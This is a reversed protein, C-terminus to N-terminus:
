HGRSALSRRSLRRYLELTEPHVADFPEVEDAVLHFLESMISEVGAPHGAAEATRLLIRYLREDYPSVRLGQRAGWEAGAADYVTLCHESYQCALDVVVAEVTAQIGELLVWDSSRLGDFPRGRILRLALKWDEPIKSNSLDVFRDWDTHVGPGLALRGRARPLYDDGSSESGLSRRAASATSHLSAPAMVKDPWLATAWRDNSVGGPHMALYVILEVAWARTFPRAAGVIEVPGLIRVEVGGDAGDGAPLECDQVAIDPGHRALSAPDEPIPISLAGYPMCGPDVGEAITAVSVLSNVGDILNSPVPQASASDWEWDNEQVLVRGHEARVHWRASPVDRGIIAIVGLSGDGVLETIRQLTGYEDVSRTSSCVVICLDWAEDGELWRPGANNSHGGLALLARREKIRRDLKQVVAGISECHSVRELGDVKAEFGVLILDAQDAWASTALEVAISQILAGAEEGSVAISGARELNAVLLGDGDRGLTVLGPIPPDTGVVEADRRLAEIMQDSRNLLWSNGSSSRQFPEPVPDLCHRPDLVFEIMEDRLRVAVVSPPNIRSRRVIVSLLRLSLNIWEAAGQDAAVRLGREFEALDGEPLAIRLGSPRRRQQARRLRDLLAVVGGALLGYGIPAVPIATPRDGHTANPSRVSPVAGRAELDVAEVTGSLPAALYPQASVSAESQRGLPDEVQTDVPHVSSRESPLFLVWGAEIWHDDTLGGGNTQTRGYNAEAIQRWALPSGLESKAISWLTDGQQVIYRRRSDVQTARGPNEAPSGSNVPRGLEQSTVRGPELAPLRSDYPFASMEAADLRLPVEHRTPTSVALSAGVLFAAISQVYRSGPVRGPSRGRAVGIVEIVVCITLWGWAAWAATWLLRIAAADGIGGRLDSPIRDPHLAAGIVESVPPFAHASALIAPVGVVLAFTGVAWKMRQAAGPKPSKVDSSKLHIM